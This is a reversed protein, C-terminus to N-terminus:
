FSKEEFDDDSIAQHAPPDNQLIVCDPELFVKAMDRIEIEHGDPEATDRSGSDDTPIAVQGASGTETAVVPNKKEDKTGGPTTAPEEAGSGAKATAAADDKDDNEETMLHTLRKNTEPKDLEYHRNAVEEIDVEMDIAAFPIKAGERICTKEAMAKPFKDWVKKTRAVNRNVMIQTRSLFVLRSTYQGDNDTYSFFCYGGKIGKFDDMVVAFPDAPHYAYSATRDKIDATFVDKDFVLKCEVFANKYHRNLANVFGKYDIDLEAELAGQKEYIIMYILRRSDFPLQMNMSEIFCAWLSAITCQYFYKKDNPDKSGGDDQMIVTKFGTLNKEVRSADGGVMKLLRTAMNPNHSIKDLQACVTRKWEEVTMPKSQEAQEKTM